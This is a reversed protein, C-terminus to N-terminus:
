SKKDNTWRKISENFKLRNNSGIKSMTIAVKDYKSNALSWLSSLHFEPILCGERVNNKTM